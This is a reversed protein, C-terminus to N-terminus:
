AEPEMQLVVNGRPAGSNSHIITYNGLRDILSTFRTEGSSSGPGREPATIKIRFKHQPPLPSSSGLIMECQQNLKERLEMPRQLAMLITEPDFSMEEAAKEDLMQRVELIAEVTLESLSDPLRQNYERAQRYVKEFDDLFEAPSEKSLIICLHYLTTISSGVSRFIKQKEPQDKGLELELLIKEIIGFLRDTGYKGKEISSTAAMRVEKFRALFECSSEPSVPEGDFHAEIMAMLHDHAKLAMKIIEPTVRTHGQRIFDCESELTHAFRAIDNLEVMAASGKITHMVRFVRDIEGTNDPNEELRLLSQELEQLFEIAGERFVAKMDNNM